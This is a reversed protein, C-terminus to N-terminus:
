ARTSSTPPTPTQRGWARNSAGELADSADRAPANRNQAGGRDFPAYWWWAVAGALLALLLAGVVALRIAMRLVRKLVFFFLWFGVVAAVIIYIIDM